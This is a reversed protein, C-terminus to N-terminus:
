DTTNQTYTQTHTHTHKQWLPLRFFALSLFNTMQSFFSFSFFFFHQNITRVRFPPIPRRIKLGDFMYQLFSLENYTKLVKWTIEDFKVALCYIIMSGDRPIESSSASSSSSSSSSSQSATSSTNSEITFRIPSASQLIGKQIGVSKRM